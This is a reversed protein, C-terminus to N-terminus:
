FVRHENYSIREGISQIYRARLHPEGLNGSSIRISPEDRIAAQAVARQLLQHNKLSIVRTAYAWREYNQLQTGVIDDVVGELEFFFPSVIRSM